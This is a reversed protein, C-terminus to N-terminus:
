DHRDAGLLGATAKELTRALTRLARAITSTPRWALALTRAPEPELRRLVLRGHANEHARALTPLFTVGLGGAVMQALTSLSTAEVAPDIWSASCLRLAQDRLCHGETLLLVGREPVQSFEVPGRDAALPHGKPVALLFPDRGIPDVVLEGLDAEAAILCADLQGQEVARRLERTREEVWRVRLEPHAKQLPGVLSPLLYPSITPIVGIRLITSLPDSLRRAEEKIADTELLVRRFQAILVGGAATLRMGKPGREFLAAGLADELQALQASLAPQSVACREAAKRFGGTDAVAVAYQLQRLTFPHALLEMNLAGPRARKGEGTRLRRCLTAAWFRGVEGSAAGHAGRGNM